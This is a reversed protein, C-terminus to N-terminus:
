RGLSSPAEVVRWLATDGEWGNLSLGDFVRVAHPTQGEGCAVAVLLGALM